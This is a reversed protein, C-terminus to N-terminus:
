KVTLNYENKLREALIDEWAGEIPDLNAKIVDEKVKEYRHVFQKWLALKQQDMYISDKGIVVANSSSDEKAGGKSSLGGVSNDQQEFEDEDGRVKAKDATDEKEKRENPIIPEDPNDGAIRNKTRLEALANALSVKGEDISEQIEKPLLTAKIYNDVTQRSVGVLEAIQDNTLSYDDKMELYGFAREMVSYKLNNDSSHIRRLRDMDTFDKPNQLVEVQRILKGNPYTAENGKEALLHRLARFRREGGNIYGLGDKFDLIIADDPGNSNFIAEALQPIMLKIEYLEETMGEPQVRWNFYKRNLGPRLRLIYFDVIHLREARSISVERVSNRGDTVTLDVFPLTQQHATKKPM